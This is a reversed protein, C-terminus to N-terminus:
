GCVYVLLQYTQGYASYFYLTHFLFMYLPHLSYERMWVNM